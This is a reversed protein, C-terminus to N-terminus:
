INNDQKWGCVSTFASGTDVLVDTKVGGVCGDCSLSTIGEDTDQPDKISSVTSM